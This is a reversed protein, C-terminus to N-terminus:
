FLKSNIRGWTQSKCRNHFNSVQEDVFDGFSSSDVEPRGASVDTDGGGIVQVAMIKRNTSPLLWKDFAKLTGEKTVNRLYIAEDRWVQWQFRGNVIEDYYSDTEESMSNHMELKQTSVAVLHELFKDDTMTELNEKRFDLLFKDIREVIQAASKVNSVVRFIIGMIGYTWRESCHVDYGFQDKTRIQDFIPDDMMHALLDIMVRDELNDKAIQLYVEVSTNTETPEKSPVIITSHERVSPLKLIAQSPYKQRKLGTSSKDLMALILEKAQKADESTINGHYFCEIAFSKLLATSVEMFKDITLEAISELKQNASWYRRRIAELRVNNSLSSATM